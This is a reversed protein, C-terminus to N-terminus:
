RKEEVKPWYWINCPPSGAKNYSKLGEILLRSADYFAGKNLLEQMNERQNGLCMGSFSGLEDKANKDIRFGHPHNFRHFYKNKDGKGDRGDQLKLAVMFTNYIAFGSIYGGDEVPDRWMRVVFNGINHVRDTDPNYLYVHETLFLLQGNDTFGVQLIDPHSCLKIFEARIVKNSRRHSKTLETYLPVMEEIVSARKADLM